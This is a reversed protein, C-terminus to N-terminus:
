PAMKDLHGSIMSVILVMAVYIGLMIPHTSEIKM